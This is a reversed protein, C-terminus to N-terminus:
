HACQTKSTANDFVELTSMLRCTAALSLFGGFAGSIPTGSTPPTFTLVARIQLRAASTSVDTDRNLDVSVSKGPDVKMDAMKLLNGQDDMFAVHAACSLATALPVPVGPNLGSFRATQGATIGIM